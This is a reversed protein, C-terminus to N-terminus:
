VRYEKFKKLVTSDEKTKLYYSKPFHSIDEIFILMYRSSIILSVRIPGLINSYVLIMLEKEINSRRFLLKIQKRYICDEYINLNVSTLNTDEIGQVIKQMKQLNKFRLYSIRLYQLM